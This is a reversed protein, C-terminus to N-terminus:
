WPRWMLDNRRGCGGGSRNASEGDVLRNDVPRKYMCRLINQFRQKKLINARIKQLIEQKTAVEASLRSKNQFSASPRNNATPSNSISALPLLPDNTMVNLYKSTTKLSLDLLIGGDNNRNELPALLNSSKVAILNANDAPLKIINTQAKDTLFQLQIDNIRELFNIKENACLNAGNLFIAMTESENLQAANM